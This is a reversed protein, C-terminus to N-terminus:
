FKISVEKKLLVDNEYYEAVWKGNQKHLIGSKNKLIFVDKLSTKQLIYVVKPTSDVLQFGFPKSQAYLVESNSIVEDVIPENVGNEKSTEEKVVQEVEVVEEVAKEPITEMSTAPEAAPEKLVEKVIPEDKEVVVEAQITANSDYSYGLSKVSEFAGRTAQQYAKKFEKVKSKGESSVHVEVNRCNLLTLYVKTSFMNSKNTMKLKLGLCPNNYLDQPVKEDEFLATFGEKNFLFKTLASLQYQNEKKQFDFKKPVLVYKYGNLDTQADLNIAVFCCAVLLLVIKLKM